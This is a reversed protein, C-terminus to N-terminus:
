PASGLAVVPLKAPNSAGDAGASSAAGAGFTLETIVPRHDSATHVMEDDLIYSNTVCPELLANVFIHDVRSGPRHLLTSEDYPTGPNALRYSDVFGAELIAGVVAGRVAVLHDEPLEAGAPPM